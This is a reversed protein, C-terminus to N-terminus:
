GRLQTAALLCVAVFPLLRRRLGLASPGLHCTQGRSVGTDRHRCQMLEGASGKSTFSLSTALSGTVDKIVFDFRCAGCPM